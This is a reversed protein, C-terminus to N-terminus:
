RRPGAVLDTLVTPDRDRVAAPHTDLIAAVAAGDPM